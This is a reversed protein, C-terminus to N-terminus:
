KEIRVHFHPVTQAYASGTHIALRSWKKQPHGYLVFM